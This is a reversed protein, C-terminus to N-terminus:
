KKKSVIYKLYIIKKEMDIVENPQYIAEGNKNLSMEYNEVEHEYFEKLLQFLNSNNILDKIAENLKKESAIWSPYMISELDKVNDIIKPDETRHKMVDFLTPDEDLLTIVVYEKEPKRKIFYEAYFIKEHKQKKELGASPSRSPSSSRSRKGKKDDDPGGGINRRTKNMKKNTRKNTSKTRVM